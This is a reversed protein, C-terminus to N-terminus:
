VITRRLKKTVLIMVWKLMPSGLTLLRRTIWGYVLQGNGPLLYALGAKEKVEQESAVSCHDNNVQSRSIIQCRFIPIGGRCYMQPLSFSSFCQIQRGINM